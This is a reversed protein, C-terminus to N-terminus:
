IFRKIRQKLSFPICKGLFFLKVFFNMKSLYVILRRGRGLGLCISRKGREVKKVYGIIDERSVTGDIGPANDGKIIYHNGCKCRKVVRHIALKKKYPHIFAVVYGTDISLSNIGSLTLIDGDRIFPSMSFGKAEFRFDARKDLVSNLLSILNDGSISIEGRQRAYGSQEQKHNHKM